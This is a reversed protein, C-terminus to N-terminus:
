TFGDSRSDAWKAFGPNVTPTIGRGGDRSAGPAQLASALRIRALYPNKQARDQVDLLAGCQGLRPIGCGQRRPLSPGHVERRDPELPIEGREGSVARGRGRRRGGDRRWLVKRIPPDPEDITLAVRPDLAMYHAWAARKRPVLWFCLGDWHYWSPVVYPWGDPKICAVRCLWPGALFENMEAASMGGFKEGRWSM